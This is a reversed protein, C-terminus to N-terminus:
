VVGCSKDEGNGRGVLGVDVGRQGAGVRSGRIVGHKHGGFGGAVIFGLQVCGGDEVHQVAHGRQALWSAGGVGVVEVGGGGAGRGVMCRELSPTDRDWGVGLLQLFPVEVRVNSLAPEVHVGGIGHAEEILDDDNGAPRHRHPAKAHHGLHFLSLRDQLQHGEICELHEVL